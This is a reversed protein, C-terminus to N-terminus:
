STESPINVKRLRPPGGGHYEGQPYDMLWRTGTDLCEYEVEWTKGNVFIEVLHQEAYDLAENGELEILETCRCKM